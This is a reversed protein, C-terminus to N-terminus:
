SKFIVSKAKSMLKHKLKLIMCLCYNYEATKYGTVFVIGCSFVIAVVGKILLDALLNGTDAIYTCIFYTIFVSIVLLIINKFFQKIFESYKIDMKKFLIYSSAWIGIILDAAVTSLLISTVGLNAVKFCFLSVGINIFAYLINIYKLDWQAGYAGLFMGVASMLIQVGALYALLLIFLNSHFVYQQGLWFHIFPSACVFVVTSIIIAASSSIFFSRRFYAYIKEKSSVAIMRAVGPFVSGVFSGYLGQLSNAIILYNGYLTVYTSSVFVSILINDIGASLFFTVKGCLIGLFQKKGKEFVNKPIAITDYQDIFGFEKNARRYMAIEKIVAVCISWIICALLKEMPEYPLLVVLLFTGLNSIITDCILSIKTLIYQRQDSLLLQRKGVLCYAIVNLGVYLFYIYYLKQMDPADKIIQPLLFSAAFACVLFVVALIKYLKRYLLNISKVLSWNKEEMPKFLAFQMADPIGLNMFSIIGMINIIVYQIGILHATLNYLVIARMFFKMLFNLSLQVTAVSGSFFALKTKSRTM